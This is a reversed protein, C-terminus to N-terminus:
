KSKIAIQFLRAAGCSLDRERPTDNTPCNDIKFKCMKIYPCASGKPIMGDVLENTM